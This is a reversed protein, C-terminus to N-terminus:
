YALQDTKMFAIDLVNPQLNPNDSFNTRLTLAAITNGPKSDLYGKHTPDEYNNVWLNRFTPKAHLNGSVFSYSTTILLFDIDATSIRSM